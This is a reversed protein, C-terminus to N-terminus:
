TIKNLHLSLKDGIAISNRECYGGNVEILFASLADSTIMEESMPVLDRKIDVVTLDPSIIIIDLPILTNKMWFAIKQPKEFIFIMGSHEPLSKQYMLGKMKKQPTDAIKLNIKRHNGHQNSIVAHPHTQFNGKFLLLLGISLFLLLFIVIYLDM